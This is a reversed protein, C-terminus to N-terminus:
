SQQEPAPKAAWKRQRKRQHIQLQQFTGWATSGLDSGVVSVFFLDSRSFTEGGHQVSVLRHFDFEGSRDSRRTM